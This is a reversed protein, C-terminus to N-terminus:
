RGEFRVNTYKWKLKKPELAKLRRISSGTLVYNVAM